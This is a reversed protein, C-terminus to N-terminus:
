APFESGHGRDRVQLERDALHAAHGFRDHRPRDRM